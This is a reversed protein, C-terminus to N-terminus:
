LPPEIVNRVARVYSYDNKDNKVYLGDHGSIFEISWTFTPSVTRTTSSWYNFLMTDPFYATDITPRCTKHDVITRLKKINPLRWDTYGALTLDECYALAATWPLLSARSTSQQWMLGTATDTVTGDGNDVFTNDTQLGRVARVHCANTDYNIYANGHKFNIYWIRNTSCAVETSSWYLDLTTQPFYETRITPSFGKYDLICALEKITPLRWDSFGGFESTNLEEIFLETADQWTYKDDKDNLTEDNTKVEWILGTIDDRVMTWSTASDPLDNGTSDLKTYSPPNITYDGDQGYLKEGPTRCAIQNGWWDYCTTQGTDPVRSAYISPPLSVTVSVTTSAALSDEVTITASGTGIAKLSLANDSVSVTVVSTDSSGANYPGTGGIIACDITQGTSIDVTSPNVTLSSEIEFHEINSYDSCGSSNCAQLWVFYAAGAWLDASLSTSNGMNLPDNVSGNPYAAYLLNYWTAGRIEDWSMSVTIGSTTLTLTPTEPPDNTYDLLEYTEGDTIIKVWGIDKALYYIRTSTGTEGYSTRWNDVVYLVYTTFTGAEVTTAHPGSITCSFSDSGLGRFAGNIYEKRSWESTYTQGVEMVNPLFEQPSDPIYVWDPGYEAGYYILNGETDFKLAQAGPGPYDVLFINGSIYPTYNRYSVTVAANNSFAESYGDQLVWYDKTTIRISEAASIVEGSLFIVALIAILIAFRTSKM